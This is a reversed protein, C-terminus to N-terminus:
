LMGREFVLVFEEKMTTRILPKAGAGRADVTCPTNKGAIRRTRRLTLRFGFSRLVDGLFEDIYVRRGCVNRRSVVFVIRANRELVSNMEACAIHLDDLFFEVRNRGPNERGALWYDDVDSIPSRERRDGGLCSDDLARPAMYKLGLQHVHQLVGLCLASVDGYGVTTRSDGYPPSSFVMNFPAEANIRHHTTLRRADGYVADVRGVLPLASRLEGIIRKARREFVSWPSLRHRHRKEASMRHLKWQQKRCYSVERVTASLVAAFISLMGPALETLNLWRVIETLERRALKSFWKVSRGPELDLNEVDAGRFSTSGALVMELQRASVHAIKARSILVALPNVDVGIAKSGKAACAVVTRSTGCFPDLLRTTSVVFQNAIETALRDPIM